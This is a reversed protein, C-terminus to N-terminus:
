LWSKALAVILGALPVITGAWFIFMWKMQDRLQAAVEARLGAVAADMRGELRAVDLQVAGIRNELKAESVAIREDLLTGFRAFYLGALERFETRNVAQAENVWTVLDQTVEDGWTEKLKELLRASAPM